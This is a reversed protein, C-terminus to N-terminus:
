AAYKATVIIRFGAPQPNVPSRVIRTIVMPNSNFKEYTVSGLGDTWVWGVPLRWELGWGMIQTQLAVEYQSLAMRLQYTRNGEATTLPETYNDTNDLAFSVHIQYMDGRKAVVHYGAKREKYSLERVRRVVIRTDKTSRSMKQLWGDVWVQREFRTEPLDSV